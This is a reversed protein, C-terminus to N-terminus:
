KMEGDGPGSKGPGTSPGPPQRDAQRCLVSGDDGVDGEVTLVDGAALNGCSIAKGDSDQLTAGEVDVPYSNGDGPASSSVMSLRGGSCNAGTVVGEFALNQSDPEARGSGADLRVNNLVLTGGTPLTTQLRVIPGSPLHFSITIPGGFDGRLSFAGSFDSVASVGAGDISVTVNAVTGAAEASDVGALLRRALRALRSGQGPPVLSATSSAINGEAVSIGTGTSGGGGACSGLLPISAAAFVLLWRRTRSFRM